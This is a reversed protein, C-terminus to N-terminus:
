LYKHDTGLIRHDLPRREAEICLTLVVNHLEVAVGDGLGCGVGGEVIYSWTHCADCSWM